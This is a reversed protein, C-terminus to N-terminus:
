RSMGCIGSSSGSSRWRTWTIPPPSFVQIDGTWGLRESRQPCDTPIDIFNSRQGWVTNNYLRNIKANGTEIYGTRTLDSFVARGTFASPDIEGPWGTVKVYRFGFFTFHPRVTQATGDSVYIFESKADRYNKHYFNGQQLIEGFELKM